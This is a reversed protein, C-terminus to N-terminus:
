REPAVEVRAKVIRDGVRIRDVVAFGEVVQAFVTYRGELHPTPLHSIFIQCGGTDDNGKPMGVTGRVYPRDSIEDPLLYGPGGWGDGRPCGGQIVFDAVVRHWTLGDYFGKGALAALNVCHAPADDPLLRAVITGQTTELVLLAGRLARAAARVGRADHGHLRFGSPPPTPPLPRGLKLLAARAAVRVPGDPDLAAADLWEDAVGLAALANAAEIRVDMRGTGPSARAAAVIAPAHEKSGRAALSVVASSRVAFDDRQLLDLLVAVARAAPVREKGCAEAAAVQGRVTRPPDSPLLDPLHAAIQWATEERWADDGPPLPGPDKGAAALAVLARARLRPDDSLRAAVEALPGAAEAGGAALHEIVEERVLPDAHAALAAVQGASAADFPRATGRLAEVVIRADPDALRDLLWSRQGETQGLGRLAFVRDEFPRGAAAAERLASTWEAPAAVPRAERRARERLLVWAAYILRWRVGPDDELALAAFADQTAGADGARALALAASGRVDADGHRLHRALDSVARPDRTKGLAELVFPLDAPALRGLAARLPLVVDASGIQGLAFLASRRVPGAPDDLLPLLLSLARGEKLRGAAEAALRRDSAEPSVAARGLAAEDYVRSLEAAVVDDEIPGARAAPVVACAALAM